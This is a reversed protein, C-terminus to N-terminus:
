CFLRFDALGLGQDRPLDRFISLRPAKTIRKRSSPSVDPRLILGNRLTLKMTLAPRLELPYVVQLEDGPDCGVNGVFVLDHKAPPHADQREQGSERGDPDGRRRRLSGGTPVQTM